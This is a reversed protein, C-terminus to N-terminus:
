QLSAFFLMSFQQQLGASAVFVLALHNEGGRTSFTDAYRELRDIRGFM